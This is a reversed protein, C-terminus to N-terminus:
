RAEAAAFDGPVSILALNAGPLQNVAARVTRVVNLGSPGSAASPQDLLRKAEALASAGTSVSDAKLALILDGAEAKDGEPGRGGAARLIEKNAPTGIMLGAEEVGPLAAIQRSMRMLVISDLYTGRRVENLIVSMRRGHDARVRGAGARLVQAAGKGRRRRGA